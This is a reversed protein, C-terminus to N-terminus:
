KKFRTWIGTVSMTVKEGVKENFDGMVTPLDHSKWKRRTDDLHENM